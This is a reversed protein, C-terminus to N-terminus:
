WNSAPLVVGSSATIIAFVLNYGYSTERPNLLFTCLEPKCVCYFVKVPVNYQYEYVMLIEAHVYPKVM